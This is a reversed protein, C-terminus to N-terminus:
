CSRKSKAAPPKMLIDGRFDIRDHYYRIQRTNDNALSNADLEDNNEDTHAVHNPQHQQQQQQQQKIRSLLHSRIKSPILENSLHNSKMLGSSSSRPSSSSPSSSTIPPTAVTEHQEIDVDEDDLCEQKISPSAIAAANTNITVPSANPTPQGNSQQMNPSSAERKVGGGGNSEHVPHLADSKQSIKVLFLDDVKCALRSVITKRTLGSTIDPCNSSASSSSSSASIERNRASQNANYYNSARQNNITPTKSTTEPRSFMYNFAPHMCAAAAAAAASHPLVGAANPHFSSMSFPPPPPPLINLRRTSSSPSSPFSFNNWLPYPYASVFFFFLNSSIALRNALRQNVKVIYHNSCLEINNCLKTYFIVLVHPVNNSIRKM